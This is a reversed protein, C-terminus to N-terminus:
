RPMGGPAYCQLVKEYEFSFGKYGFTSIIGSIVDRIKDNFQEENMTIAFREYEEEIGDDLDQVYVSVHVEVTRKNDDISSIDVPISNNSFEETGRKYKEERKVTKEAM